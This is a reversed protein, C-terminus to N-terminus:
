SPAPRRPSPAARHSRPCRTSRWARPRRHRHRCRTRSPAAVWVSPPWPTTTSSSPSRPRTRSPSSRGPSSPAVSPRRPSTTSPGRSPPSPRARRRDGRPRPPLPDSGTAFAGTLDSRPDPAPETLARDTAPGAYPAAETYPRPQPAPRAPDPRPETYPAPAGGAWGAGLASEGAITPSPAAEPRTTSGPPGHAASASVAIQDRWDSGPPGPPALNVGPPPTPTEPQLPPLRLAEREATVQTAAADEDDAVAAEDMKQWTAVGDPPPSDLDRKRAKRWEKLRRKTEKPVVVTPNRANKRVGAATVACPVCYPPKVPGFPYVLCDACFPGGCSRCLGEAVEYPHVQCIHAM